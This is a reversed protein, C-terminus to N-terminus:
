STFPTLCSAEYAMDIFYQVFGYYLFAIALNLVKNENGSDNLFYIQFNFIIQM